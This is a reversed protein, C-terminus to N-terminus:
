RWNTANRAALLDLEPVSIGQPTEPVAKHPKFIVARSLADEERCVMFLSALVVVNTEPVPNCKAISYGSNHGM